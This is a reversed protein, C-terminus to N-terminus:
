CNVVVAGLPATLVEEEVGLSMGGISRNRTKVGGGGAKGVVRCVMIIRNEHRYFDDRFHFHNM